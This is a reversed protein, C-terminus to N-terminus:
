MLEKSSLAWGDWDVLVSLDAPPESCAELFKMVHRLNLKHQEDGYNEYLSPCGKHFYGGGEGGGEEGERNGM